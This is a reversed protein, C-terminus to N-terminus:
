GEPLIIFYVGTIVISKGTNGKMTMKGGISGSFEMGPDTNFVDVVIKGESGQNMSSYEGDRINVKISPPYASFPYEGAGPTHVPYTESGIIYGFNLDIYAVEPEYIAAQLALSLAGGWYGFSIQVGSPESLAKFIGITDGEIKLEFDICGNECPDPAAEAEATDQATEQAFVDESKTGGGSCFCFSLTLLFVFCNFAQTRSKM